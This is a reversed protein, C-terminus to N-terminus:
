LIKIDADDKNLFIVDAYLDYMVGGDVSKERIVIRKELEALILKKIRDKTMEVFSPVNHDFSNMRINTGIREPVENVDIVVKM